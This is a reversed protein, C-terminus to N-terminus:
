CATGVVARAPAVVYGARAMRKVLEAYTEEFTKGHVEFHRVAGDAEVAVSIRVPEEM